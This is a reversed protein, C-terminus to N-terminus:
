PRTRQLLRDLDGEFITQTTEFLLLLEESIVTDFGKARKREILRHQRSIIDRGKDVHRRALAVQGEHSLM